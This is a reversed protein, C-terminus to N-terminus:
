YKSKRKSRRTKRRSKRSKRKSKRSKRISKRISKRRSKRKSKRKSRKRGDSRYDRMLGVLDHYGLVKAWKEPLLEEEVVIYGGAFSNYKEFRVKHPTRLLSSDKELLGIITDEDHNAIAKFFDKVDKESYRGDYRKSM